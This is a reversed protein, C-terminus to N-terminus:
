PAIWMRERKSNKLHNTRVYASTKQGLSFPNSVYGGVAFCAAIHASQYSINPFCQSKDTLLEMVDDMGVDFILDESGAM